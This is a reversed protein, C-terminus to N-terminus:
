NLYPFKGSFLYLAFAVVNFMIAISFVKVLMPSLNGFFVDKQKKKCQITYYNHVAAIVGFLFGSLIYNLHFGNWCGMLLFTLLLALNQRFVPYPKLSKKRTFFMYLPTFFYAKLWDGLSIHFTQWFEQSNKALFPNRFNLPVDIGFLKGVGMAMFSYGAFDFFIYFYYSYMKNAMHLLETSEASYLNLWYRSIYEACIYKFVLGKVFFDWAIVFGDSNIAKFGVDESAKYRSLKDIPGILLTPSFSLFNFYSTFNVMKETPSKDMYYGVIKFSAYSLGGFSILDNLPFGNKTIELKVLIMPVLLLIIGWIKSSIKLVNSFLFILGYSFLILGFFHYPKPFYFLLFIFNVLALVHKYADNKLVFKGLLVIGFLLSIIVFFDISEFPLM